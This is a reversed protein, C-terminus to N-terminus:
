KTTNIVLNITVDSSMGLTNGGINWDKRNIKTTGKFSAKDGKVDVVFPIKVQKTITKITLNFTGLYGTATKEIKTSVMKLKPYKVVEFFESKEKLHTNRLSNDTDLTAAEVTGSIVSTALNEPNFNIVGEFGKFKGDVKVGMMKITFGMATSVPKWVQANGLNLSFLVIAIVLKINNM